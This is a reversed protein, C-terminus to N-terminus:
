LIRINENFLSLNGDIADYTLEAIFYTIAYAALIIVMGIVAAVVTKKASAVEQENGGAKMWRFGGWIILITFILGLFTIFYKIIEVVLNRPDEEGGTGIFVDKIDSSDTGLGIQSDLVSAQAPLINFLLM